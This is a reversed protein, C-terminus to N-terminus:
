NGIGGDPHCKDPPLITGGCIPCPDYNEEKGKDCVWPVQRVRADTGGPLLFSKTRTPMDPREYEVEVLRGENVLEELCFLLPPVEGEPGDPGEEVVATAIDPVAALETGKCGGMATVTGEILDKYEERTM